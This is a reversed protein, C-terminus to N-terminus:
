ISRTTSTAPRLCHSIADFYALTLQFLKASFNLSALTFSFKPTFSLLNVTFKFHTQLASKKRENSKLKNNCNVCTWYRNMEIFLSGIKLIDIEIWKSKIIISQIWLHLLVLYTKGKSCCEIWIGIKIESFQYANVQASHLPDLFRASSFLANYSIQIFRSVATKALYQPFHLIKLM